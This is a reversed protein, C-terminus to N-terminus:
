GAVETKSARFLMASHRFRHLFLNFWKWLHTYFEVVMRFLGNIYPRQHPQIPASNVISSPLFALEDTDSHFIEASPNVKSKGTVTGGSFFLVFSFANKVRHLNQFIQIGSSDSQYNIFGQSGAVSFSIDFSQLAEQSNLTITVLAGGSMEMTFTAFRDSTIRRITVEGKVPLGKRTTGSVRLARQGIVASVVDIIHSGIM